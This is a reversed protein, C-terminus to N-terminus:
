RIGRERTMQIRGNRLTGRVDCSLRGTCHMGFEGNEIGKQAITRQIYPKCYNDWITKASNGNFERQHYGGFFGKHDADKVFCDANAAGMSAFFVGAAAITLKLGTKM